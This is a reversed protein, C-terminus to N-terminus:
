CRQPTAPGGLRSCLSVLAPVLTDERLISRHRVNLAAGLREFSLIEIGVVAGQGDLDLVVTDDLAPESRVIMEDTLRVYGM